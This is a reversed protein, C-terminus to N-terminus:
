LKVFYFFIINKNIQRECGTQAERENGWNVINGNMFMFTSKM